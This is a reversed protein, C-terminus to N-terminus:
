PEFRKLVQCVNSGGFGSSNSLAIRPAESVTKVPLNLGACAEDPVRLHANGPIFGTAISLACIGSELVGAMSLPHGTLGKTSSIRPFHGGFIKQLALAEARDGILTSTAHANIYEVETPHVGADALAREMAM